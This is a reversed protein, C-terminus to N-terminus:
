DSHPCKHEGEEQEEWLRWDRWTVTAVACIVCEFVFFHLGCISCLSSFFSASHVVSLLSERELACLGDQVCVAAINMCSAFSYFPKGSLSISLHRSLYISLSHSLSLTLSVLWTVVYRYGHKRQEENAFVDAESLKSWQELRKWRTGGWQWLWEAGGASM